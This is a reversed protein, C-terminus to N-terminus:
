ESKNTRMIIETAENVIDRVAKTTGTAGTIADFENEKDNEGEAVITFPGKKGRFQDRFWEEDIRAGLGPTESHKIFDIGTIKGTKTDFGVHATIAGWLGSGNITLVVILGDKSRYQPLTGAGPSEIISERFYGDLEEDGEPVNLGATYLVSRKLFLKENIEIMSRTYLHVFSLIVVFVFTISFMFVVMRIRLATKSIREM